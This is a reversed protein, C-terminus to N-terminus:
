NFYGYETRIVSSFYDCNIISKLISCLIGLGKKNLHYPDKYQFLYKNYDMKDESLFNAFCDVYYSNTKYSVEELIANFELFNQCTYWYLNKMPLTSMVFITAGPFYDRVKNILM